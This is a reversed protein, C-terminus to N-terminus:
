GDNRVIPFTTQDKPAPRLVPTNLAQILMPRYIERMKKEFASPKRLSVYYEEPCECWYETEYGGAHEWFKVQFDKCEQTHVQKYPM